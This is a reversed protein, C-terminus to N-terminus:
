SKTRQRNTSPTGTQPGPRPHFFMPAWVGLCALSRLASSIAQRKPSQGIPRMLLMQRMPPIYAM